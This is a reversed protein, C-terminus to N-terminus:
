NGVQFFLFRQKCIWDTLYITLLDYRRKNLQNVALNSNATFLCYILVSYNEFFTYADSM